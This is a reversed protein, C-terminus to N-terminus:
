PVGTGQDGCSCHTRKGKGELYLDDSMHQYLEGRFFPTRAKAKGNQKARTNFKSQARANSKTMVNEKYHSHYFVLLVAHGIFYREQQREALIALLPPPGFVM